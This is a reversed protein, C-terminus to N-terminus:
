GMARLRNTHKLRKMHTEIWSNIPTDNIGYRVCDAFDAQQTIINRNTKIIEGWGNAQVSKLDRCTNPCTEPNIKFDPFNWMFYNCRGRSHQHTPNAFTVIQSDRLNLQRRLQIYKSANDTQEISKNDGSKDGTMRCNPLQNSYRSQLLEVMAQISGHKIEAEGFIHCHDGQNDKWIHALVVAFPDINFDIWVHLQKSEDFVAEISEHKTAYNTFFPSEGAYEVFMGNIEQDVNSQGGIAFIENELARIDESALLPNDHTTYQLLKYGPKKSAAYEYLSYFVHKQGNKKHRGKPVGAAILQSDPYDLLMPLITHSYLYNNQLILGAENLFIKKYAFGEISEPADASRFDIVSNNIKLVKKQVNWDWKVIKPLKKLDPLFYREFYREINGNITDVWLLPSIGDLCYEIFAKEAGETIGTRRGKPIILYKYQPSEFFIELQHPFYTLEIENQM